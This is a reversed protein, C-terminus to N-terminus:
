TRRNDGRLKLYERAESMFGVATRIAQNATRWDKARQAQDLIREAHAYLREARGEARRVDTLLSDARLVEEV